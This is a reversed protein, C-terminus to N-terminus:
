ENTVKIDKNYRKKLYDARVKGMEQTQVYPDHKTRQVIEKAKVVWEKEILDNDDAIQPLGQDAAPLASPIAAPDAMPVAIPPLLPAPVPSQGTEVAQAAPMEAYQEHSLPPPVTESLPKPLDM